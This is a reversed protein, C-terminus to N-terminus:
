KKKRRRRPRPPTPGKTPGPNQAEPQLGGEAGELVPAPEPKSKAIAAAKAQAEQMVARIDHKRMLYLQQATTVVNFALWYLIFAAPWQYQVTWWVLMITLFVSLMTQQRMQTQDIVMFRQSILMSVAYIVLLPIDVASLDKVWLFSGRSFQFEYMRIGIYIFYLPVIMVVMPLCSAAININHEKYCNMIEQNLKQRDDKYKAQLEKIIPSVRAQDRMARFQMNAFPTLVLKILVALLVVALAYSYSKHRGTLAVLSDILRYLAAYKNKTSNFNDRAERLSLLDSEWAPKSESNPFSKLRKRAYEVAKDYQNLETNLTILRDYAPLAEDSKGYASVIKGYLKIAAQKDADTGKQEAARAERYLEGPPQAPVALPGCGSCVAILCAAVLLAASARVPSAM